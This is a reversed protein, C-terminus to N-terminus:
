MGTIDTVPYGFEAVLPLGAGDTSTYTAKIVLRRTEQAMSVLHDAGSLVIRVTAAPTAYVDERTGVLAGPGTYLSWTVTDPTMSVGAGDFFSVEVTKTSGKPVPSAADDDVTMYCEGIPITTATWFAHATMSASPVTEATIATGEGAPQTFWGSFSFGARTPATPLTGIAAGTVVGIAPIFTGGHSDFSVIYGMDDDELSVVPPYISIDIGFGVAM